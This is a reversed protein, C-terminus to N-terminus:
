PRSAGSSDQERLSPAIEYAKEFYRAARQDMGQKRYFEGVLLYLRPNWPDLELARKFAEEARLQWRRAPNKALAEALLSHSEPLQDHYRNALTCFEVTTHFDGERFAEKAKQLYQGARREAEDIEAQRDTKTSQLRKGQMDELSPATPETRGRQKDGAADMRLSQIKLFVEVLGTEIIQLEERCQQRVTPLFHEPAFSAKREEYAHRIEDWSASDTIGLVRYPSDSSLIGYFRRIRDIEKTERERQVRDLQAYAELRFPSGLSPEFEVFGLVLASYVFRIVHDPDSGPFLNAIQEFNVKGDMLSLLYGEEPALPLRELPFLAVAAPKLVRRQASLLRGIQAWRDVAAIGQLIVELTEPVDPEFVGPQDGAQFSWLGRTLRFAEQVSVRTERRVTERVQSSEVDDALLGALEVPDPPRDTFEKARQRAPPSSATLDSLFELHPGSQLALDILGRSFYVRIEEGTVASLVLCGSGEALFQDRLVEALNQPNFRDSSL